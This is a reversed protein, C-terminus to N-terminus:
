IYTPTQKLDEPHTAILKWEQNRYIVNYMCNSFYLFSVLMLKSGTLRQNQKEYITSAPPFMLAVKMMRQAVVARHKQVSKKVLM